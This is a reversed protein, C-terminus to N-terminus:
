LKIRFIEFLRKTDYKKTLSLVTPLLSCIKFFREGLDLFTVNLKDEDNYIINNAELKITNAEDLIKLSNIIIPLLSFYYGSYELKEISLSKFFISINHSKDKELLNLFKDSVLLPLIATLRSIDMQKETSLLNAIVMSIIAENNYTYFFRSM